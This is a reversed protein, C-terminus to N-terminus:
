RLSAPLNEARVYPRGFLRLMGESHSQQIAPALMDRTAWNNSMIVVLDHGGSWEDRLFIGPLYEEYCIVIRAAKSDPLDMLSNRQWDATFHGADRWPAWMSYVAPQRQPVPVVHGETFLSALNFHLGAKNRVEMGLVLSLGRSRAPGLVEHELVTAFTNDYRGLTTEPFVLTQGTPAGKLGRVTEGLEEIRSVIEYDNLPPKGFGTNVAVVGVAEVGPHRQQFQAVVALLAAVAVLVGVVLRPQTNRAAVCAAATMLIALVVGTWGAGQLAFGWGILPHGPSVMAVLPMFLPVMFGVISHLAIRWMTRSKTWTLIWSISGLVGLALMLLYGFGPADFWTQAYSPLFRVVTAHYALLFLAVQWRSVAVCLVVPMLIAPLASHGEGWSVMALLFGAFPWALLSSRHSPESDIGVFAFRQSEIQRGSVVEFDSHVANASSSRRILPSIPTM